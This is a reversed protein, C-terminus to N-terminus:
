SRYPRWEKLADLQLCVRRAEPMWDVLHCLGHSLYVSPVIYRV